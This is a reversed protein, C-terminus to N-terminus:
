NDNKRLECWTSHMRLSHNRYTKAIGCNCKPGRDIPDGITIEVGFDRSKSLDIGIYHPAVPVKITFDKGEPVLVRGKMMQDYAAQDKAWKKYSEVYPDKEDVDGIPDKTPLADRQSWDDSMIKALLKRKIDTDM